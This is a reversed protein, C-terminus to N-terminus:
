ILAFLVEVPGYPLLEALAIKVLEMGVTKSLQRTLDSLLGPEPEWTHSLGYPALRALITQPTTREADYRVLVSGTVPNAVAEAIGTVQRLAQEVQAAMAPAKKIAALRVRLRGPLVHVCGAPSMAHEM